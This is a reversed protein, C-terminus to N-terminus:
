KMVRTSGESSTWLFTCDAFWFCVNLVSCHCCSEGCIKAYFFFVCVTSDVGGSSRILKSVEFCMGSCSKFATLALM